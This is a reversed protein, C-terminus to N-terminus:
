AIMIVFHFELVGTQSITEQLSDLVHTSYSLVFSTWHLKGFSFGDSAIDSTRLRLVKEM